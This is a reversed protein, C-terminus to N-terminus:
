NGSKRGTTASIAEVMRARGHDAARLSEQVTHVRPRGGGGQASRKEFFAASYMGSVFMGGYIGDGYNM